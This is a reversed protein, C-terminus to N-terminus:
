FKEFAKKKEEGGWWGDMWGIRITVHLYVFVTLIAILRHLFLLSYLISLLISTQDLKIASFVTDM